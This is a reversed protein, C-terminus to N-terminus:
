TKQGNGMLAAAKVKGRSYIYGTISGFVTALGGIISYWSTEEPVMIVAIGLIVAVVALWFETTKPGRKIADQISKEGTSPM